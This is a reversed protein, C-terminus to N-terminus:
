AIAFGIGPFQPASEPTEWKLRYQAMVVSRVVEAIADGCAVFDSEDFVPAFNGALHWPTKKASSAATEALDTM